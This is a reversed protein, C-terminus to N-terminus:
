KAESSATGSTGDPATDKNSRERDRDRDRNQSSSPRVRERYRRQMEEYQARQETTLEQLIGAEMRQFTSTTDRRIRQLEDGTARVVPKIKAAQAETLSLAQTLRKMQFLEFQESRVRNGILSPAFRAYTFGGAVAGAVFICAFTLVVKWTKNM